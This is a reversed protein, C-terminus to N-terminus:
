GVGGADGAFGIGVFAFEGGAGLLVGIEVADPWSFRFLKALAILLLAKVALLGVVAEALLLPERWLERFDVSMGVTFFFLGLLLGKFPEVTREIARRYETKAWL